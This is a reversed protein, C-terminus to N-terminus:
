TEPQRQQAYAFVLRTNPSKLATLINTDRPCADAVSRSSSPTWDIAHISPRKGPTKKGINKAIDDLVQADSDYNGTRDSLLDRRLDDKTVQLHIDQGDKQHKVLTASEAEALTDKSGHKAAKVASTKTLDKSFKKRIISRMSTMRHLSRLSIISPRSGRNRRPRSPSTQHSADDHANNFIEQLEHLDETRTSTFRSNLSSVEKTLLPKTAPTAETIRANPLVPSDPQGEDEATCCLKTAMGCWPLFLSSSRSITNKSALCHFHCALRTNDRGATAGAKLHQPFSCCVVSLVVHRDM